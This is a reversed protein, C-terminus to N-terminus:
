QGPDDGVWVGGTQPPTSCSPQITAGGHSIRTSAVNLYSNGSLKSLSLGPTLLDFEASIGLQTRSPDNRLSATRGGMGGIHLIPNDVPTNFALVLDAMHVRATTPTDPARVAIANAAVSLQVGANISADIGQSGGSPFFSTFDASTGQGLSSLAGYVPNAVPGGQDYNTSAGGFFVGNGGTGRTFLEASTLGTFQQNTLSYTVTLAPTRAVM